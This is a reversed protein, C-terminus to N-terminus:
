AADAIWRAPAEYPAVPEDFVSGSGRLQGASPTRGDVAVVEPARSREGATLGLATSVAM